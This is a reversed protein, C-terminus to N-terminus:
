VLGNLKAFPDWEPNQHWDYEAWGAVKLALEKGHIKEIVALSMDMGASVGSSTIFRGDEVWRAQKQWLVNPGQSQVWNFAAKNSTARKEDLCGSRALVASGTCVSLVLESKEAATRLWHLLPDNNVQTRTGPGGPILLMDFAPNDSIVTDVVSRPGQKSAIPGATKAILKIQFKKDLMGFLELPGFLDLLEFEPFILAAITKM